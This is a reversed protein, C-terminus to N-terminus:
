RPKAGGRRAAGSNRAPGRGLQRPARASGRRHVPLDLPPAVDTATPPADSLLLGYATAHAMARLAREPARFVPIGKDRFSPMFEAPLMLNLVACVSYPAKKPDYIMKRAGLHEGDVQMLGPMYGCDPGVRRKFEHLVGLSLDVALYDRGDGRIALRHMGHRCWSRPSAAAVSHRDRRPGGGPDGRGRGGGLHPPSRLEAGRCRICIRFVM